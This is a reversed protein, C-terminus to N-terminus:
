EGFLKFGVSFQFNSNKVEIGDLADGAVDSLGIGYRATLNFKGFNAGAGLNFTFDTGSYGDDDKYESPDTSLLLGIQPGAQVNFKNDAFGYMFMVPISLYNATIDDGFDDEFGFKLSNYLIEPQLSMADNLAYNLYGGIHFSTGGADISVSGASWEQNAFNVGAKIGGSIQAFASAGAFSVVLLTFLVKKM